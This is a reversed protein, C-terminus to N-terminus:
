ARMAAIVAKVLLCPDVKYKSSQMDSAKLQKLLTGAAKVSEQVDADAPLAVDAESDTAWNVNSEPNLYVEAM